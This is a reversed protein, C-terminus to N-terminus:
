DKPQVKLFKTFTNDYIGYEAMTEYIDKSPHYLCDESLKYKLEGLTKIDWLLDFIYPLEIDNSSYETTIQKLKHEIVVENFPKSLQSDVKGKNKGRLCINNLFVVDIAVDYMDEGLENMIYMRECIDQALKKALTNAIEGAGGFAIDEAHAQTIVTVKKM